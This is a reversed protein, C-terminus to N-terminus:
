CGERDATPASHAAGRKQVSILTSFWLTGEASGRPQGRGRESACTTGWRTPVNCVIDERTVLPGNAPEGSGLYRVRFGRLHTGALITKCNILVGHREYTIAFFKSAWSSQFAWCYKERYFVKPFYKLRYLLLQSYFLHFPMEHIAFGCNIICSHFARSLCVIM